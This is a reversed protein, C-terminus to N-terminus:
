TEVAFPTIEYLFSGWPPLRKAVNLMGDTFYAAPECTFGPRVRYWSNEDIGLEAVTFTGSVVREESSLNFLNVVLSNEEQLVHAHIEPSAAFFRGRKYFRELRKYTKMANKQLEIISPDHHTGGICLHRVTSAAWWLAICHENDDRLDVHLYLPIDCSLSHYYLALAEGNKLYDLPHWMLEYGWLLDHGGKLGYKYYIPTFLHEATSLTPHLEILVDPCKEHVRRVLEVNASVHDEYSYPVPHGHDKAYCQGPYWNGDFMFFRIGEQALAILRSAAEEIFQQSGPCIKREIRTGDSAVMFADNPWQSLDVGRAEIASKTCIWTPLCIHLSLGMGYDDHLTEMFEQMDGLWECGWKYSGFSSDWGPDCYLADCGYSAGKAAEQLMIQRTFTTKRTLPSRRNEPNPSSLGHWEDTDYIENWQVPPNFDEPFRCGQEALYDRFAICANEFGGSVREYRVSGLNICEGPEFAQSQQPGGLWLSYGGFCIVAGDASVQPELRGMSMCEQNFHSVLYSNSGRQCFWGESFWGRGFTTGCPNEADGIAPTVGRHTLIDQITFNAEHFRPRGKLKGFPVAIWRDTKHESRIEGNRQCIRQTPGFSLDSLAICEDSENTLSLSEEYGVTEQLLKISCRVRLPGLSAMWESSIQDSKMSVDRWDRSSRQYNGSSWEVRGSIDGGYLTSNTARCILEITLSSFTQSLKLLTHSNEIVASNTYQLAMESEKKLHCEHGLWQEV